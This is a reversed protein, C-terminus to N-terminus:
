QSTYIVGLSFVVGTCLKIIFEHASDTKGAETRHWFTIKLLRLEVFIM